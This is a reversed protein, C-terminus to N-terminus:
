SPARMYRAGRMVEVDALWAICAYNEFYTDSMHKLIAEAVAQPCVIEMRVNVGGFSDRRAGRSGDGQVEQYTCGSAGLEMAKAVIQERLLQETVITILKLKQLQM